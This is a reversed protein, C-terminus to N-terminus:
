FNFSLQYQLQWNPVGTKVRILDCFVNDTCWHGCEFVYRFGMVKILKYHRTTDASYKYTEGLFYPIM